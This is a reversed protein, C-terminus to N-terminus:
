GGMVHRIVFVTAATTAMFTLTAAVSRPSLRAMGCVGHGSTCGSGYTAGIGVILGGVVLTPASVPVQIVPMAGTALLVIAPGTVMGALIAARWAFERGDIPAVLGSLIGTAGMIRGMLGMLMVASLGILAGGLLSQM